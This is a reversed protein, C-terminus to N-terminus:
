KKKRFSVPLTNGITDDITKHPNFLLRPIEVFTLNSMFSNGLIEYLLSEYYFVKQGRHEKKAIIWFPHDQEYTSLDKPIESAIFAPNFHTALFPNKLYKEFDDNSVHPLEICLSIKGYQTQVIVPTGGVDTGKNPVQGMTNVPRNYYKCLILTTPSTKPLPSNFIQFLVRWLLQEEASQSKQMYLEEERRCKRIPISELMKYALISAENLKNQTLMKRIKKISHLLYEHFSLFKESINQFGDNLAYINDINSIFLSHAHPKYSAIKPFLNILSGHGSPVISLSNDQEKIAQGMQDFRITSMTHDQELFLTDFKKNIYQSKELTTQFEKKYNIPSIFVQACLKKIASNEMYKIELYSLAEKVCPQLAKPLILLNLIDLSSVEGERIDALFCALDSSKVYPMEQLQKVLTKNLKKSNKLNELLKSIPSLYRSSAGAAPVFGVFSAEKSLDTKYNDLHDLKIISSNNIRCTDLISFINIRKKDAALYNAVLKQHYQLKQLKLKKQTDPIETLIHSMNAKM